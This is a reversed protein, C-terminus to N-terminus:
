RKSINKIYKSISQYIKAIIKICIGRIIPIYILTLPAFPTMFSGPRSIAPPPTGAPTKTEADGRALAVRGQSGGAVWGRGVWSGRFITSNLPFDYFENKTPFTLKQFSTEWHLYHKELLKRCLWLKLFITLNLM